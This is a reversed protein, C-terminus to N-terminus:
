LVEELTGLPAVSRHLVRPSDCPRRYWGLRDGFPIFSYPPTAPTATVPWSSARPSTTDWAALMIPSSKSPEYYALETSRRTAKSLMKSAHPQDDVPMGPGMCKQLAAASTRPEHFPSAACGRDPRRHPGVDRRPAAGRRRSMVADRNASVEVVACQDLPCFRSASIM